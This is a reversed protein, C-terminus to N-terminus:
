LQDLIDRLYRELEEELEEDLEALLALFEAVHHKEDNAVELFLEQAEFNDTIRAYREYQNIAELEGCISLRLMERLNLNNNGNGSYLQINNKRKYL